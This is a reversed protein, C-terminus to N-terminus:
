ITLDNEQQLIKGKKLLDMYLYVLFAVFLHVLAIGQDEEFKFQENRKFTYISLAVAYVLPVLNIYFFTKLRKLSESSFVKEDIFVKFFEKLTYFYIVYFLIGIWMVALVQIKFQFGIGLELLPIKIFAYTGEDKLEVFPINWGFQFEVFALVSFVLVFAFFVSFAYFLGKSLMYIITKM